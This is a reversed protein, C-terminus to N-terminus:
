LAPSKTWSDWKSQPMAGIYPRGKKLFIYWIDLAEPMFGRRCSLYLRLEPKAPKPYILNLVIRKGSPHLIFEKAAKAPALGVRGVHIADKGFFGEVVAAEEGTVTLQSDFVERKTVVSWAGDDADFRQLLGIGFRM